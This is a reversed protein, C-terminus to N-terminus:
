PAISLFLFVGFVAMLLGPHGAAFSVKDAAVRTTLPVVFRVRCTTACAPIRAHLRHGVWM